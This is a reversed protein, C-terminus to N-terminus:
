NKSIKGVGARILVGRKNAKACVNKLVQELCIKQSFRRVM